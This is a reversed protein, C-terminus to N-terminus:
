DIVIPTEITNFFPSLVLPVWVNVEARRGPQIQGPRLVQYAPHPLLPNRTHGDALNSSVDLPLVIPAFREDHYHTVIEWARFSMRDVLYGVQSLSRLQNIIALCTQKGDDRENLWNPWITRGIQLLLWGPLYREVYDIVDGNPAIAIRPLLWTVWLEM